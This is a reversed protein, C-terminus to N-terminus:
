KNLIDNLMEKGLYYLYKSYPDHHLTSINLFIISTLIDVKYLDFKNKILWSRFISLYENYIKPRNIGIYINNKKQKIYFNKKIVEDHSVILGHNIKALDYYLDGYKIEGGFDHRWDLFIFKKEKKQYIINEFHLDGHFRSKLSECIRDWNIQKLLVSLKKVKKNNINKKNDKIKFKTYFDKIRKLTKRNYFDFCIQKFKEKEKKLKNM